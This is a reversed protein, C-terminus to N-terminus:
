AADVVSRRTGALVAALDIYWATPDDAFGPVLRIVLDSDVAAFDDVTQRTVYASLLGLGVDAVTSAGGDWDSLYAAANEAAVEAVKGSHTELAWIQPYIDRISVHNGAAEAVTNTLALATARDTDIYDLGTAAAALLDRIYEPADTAGAEALRGAITRPFATM